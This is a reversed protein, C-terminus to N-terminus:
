ARAVTVLYAVPHVPRLQVVVAAVVTAVTLSDPTMREQAAPM